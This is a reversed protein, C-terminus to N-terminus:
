QIAVAKSEIVSKYFDNIYFDNFLLSCFIFVSLIPNSLTLVLDLIRLSNRLSKAALSPISNFNLVLTCVM